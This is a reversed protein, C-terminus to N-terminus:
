GRKGTKRGQSQDLLVANEWKRTMVRSCLEPVRFKVLWIDFWPVNVNKIIEVPLPLGAASKMSTKTILKQM